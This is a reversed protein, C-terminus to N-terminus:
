NKWYKIWKIYYIHIAISRIVFFGLFALWIGHNGYDRLLYWLPIYCFFTALLMSNRMIKAETTAIFLGDYVFSPMAIIPIIALWIIYQSAYNQVEQISTLLSVINDGWIIYIFSSFLAIILSLIFTQRLIQQFLKKNRAGYAQGCLSEVAHAFGDLAYSMLYFFNLLVANGALSLDGLRASGKTILVFVIMLCLTRIFIDRNLVFFAKFETNLVMWQKIKTFNPFQYGSNILFYLGLCVAAYESIVSGYAVGAIGWHFHMVFIYDLFMNGVQNVLMIMLVKNPQQIALYYGMFVYILLTAPASFIRIHFYELAMLAVNGGQSTIKIAYIGIWKQLVLLLFAIFLAIIIAQTLQKNIRDINQQGYSQAILGTTSMKLFGFGWFMVNFITAGINIAALYIFSDLHGLIITDVIGLMPISIASLIMPIAVRFINRYIQEQSIHSM